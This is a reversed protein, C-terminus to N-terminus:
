GQSRCSCLAWYYTDETQCAPCSATSNKHTAFYRNEGSLVTFVTRSEQSYLATLSASKTPLNYPVLGQSLTHMEWKAQGKPPHLPPYGLYSSSWEIKDRKLGQQAILM